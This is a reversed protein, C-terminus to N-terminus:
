DLWSWGNVFQLAVQIDRKSCTHCDLTWTGARSRQIFVTAANSARGPGWGEAEAAPPQGQIRSGPLPEQFVVSPQEAMPRHWPPGKGWALVQCHPVRLPRAWSNTQAQRRPGWRQSKIARATQIARLRYIQAAQPAQPGTQDQADPERLSALQAADQSRGGLSGSASLQRREALGPGGPIPTLGPSRM